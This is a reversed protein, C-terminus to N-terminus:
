LGDLVDDLWYFPVALSGSGFTRLSLRGPARFLDDPISTRDADADLTIAAQFPLTAKLGYAFALYGDRWSGIRRRAEGFLLGRLWERNAASALGRLPGSAEVDLSLDAPAVSDLLSRYGLKPM